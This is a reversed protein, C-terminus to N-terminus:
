AGSEIRQRLEEYDKLQSPSLSQKLQKAAKVFDKQSVIVKPQQYDRKSTYTALRKPMMNEVVRIDSFWSRYMEHIDTPSSVDRFMSLEHEVSEPTNEDTVETRSQMHVARSVALMWASSAMAYIDAGSLLPPEPAHTLAMKLDVDESLSFKRTQAKLIKAQDERSQPMPIYIMKDLRGPRLLAADVLDPRNSAAIVFIDSQQSVLDLESLLQSVVRDSVGGSDSGRGRSPALADLEDFFIVCPAVMMAREFVDRVNKESEGVYMDLLEPGKVAIFSCGCEGAVARALLTKGTGPPGYLLVGVRRNSSTKGEANSSITLQTKSYNVASESTEVLEIIQEKAEELGGVDGWTVGGVDVTIKGKEFYKVSERCAKMGRESYVVALGYVERRAFGTSMHVLEQLEAGTPNKSTLLSMAEELIAKREEESAKTVSIYLDTMQLIRRPVDERHECIIVFTVEQESGYPHLDLWPGENEACKSIILGEMDDDISQLVVAGFGALECRAIAEILDEKTGHRVWKIMRGVSINQIVDEADRELGELLVLRLTGELALSLQHAFPEVKWKIAEKWKARAWARMPENIFHLTNSSRRGMSVAVDTDSNVIGDGSVNHVQVWANPSVPVIDGCRVDRGTLTTKAVKALKSAIQSPIPQPLISTLIVSQVSPTPQLREIVIRKSHKHKSILADYLCPSLLAVLSMNMDVGAEGNRSRPVLSETSCLRVIRNNMRVNDEDEFKLNILAREPVVCMMISPLISPVLLLLSSPIRGIHMPISARPSVFAYVNDNADIEGGEFEQSYQHDM